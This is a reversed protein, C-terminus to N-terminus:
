LLIMGILGIAEEENNSERVAKALEIKKTDWDLQIGLQPDSKKILLKVLTVDKKFDRVHQYDDMAKGFHHQTFHLDSEEKSYHHIATIRYGVRLVNWFLYYMVKRRHHDHQTNNNRNFLEMTNCGYYEAVKLAISDMRAIQGATAM